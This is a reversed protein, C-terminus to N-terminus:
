PKAMPDPLPPGPELSHQLADELAGLAVQVRRFADLRVRAAVAGEVRVGALALRDQEGARLARDVSVERTRQIRVLNEDADALETRAGNYSALAVQMEGIAQAQLANFQAEAEARRAEAEAIPGQNRNLLPVNFSSGLSFQHFGENFSYGPSYQFDPYQNAIELHLGADAAAYELLSRRIDARHLLGGKQVNALPLSEPVPPLEQMDIVPLSPLGVVAALTASAEALHTEEVKAALEVSLLATRVIDAEPRSAEGAMVRNEMMQVTEARLNSEQRLVDLLRLTLVYDLWAARVRSQIKWATEEVAVRAADATKEAELTRWSRKGATVVTFSPFFNFLLNSETDTEYGAGTSLGPNQRGEARIIAAQATRLQARVVDLDSNFYLAVADLDNLRLKSPPWDTRNLFTRLGPDALTRARFRQESAPPDLPHPHYKLCSVLAAALM